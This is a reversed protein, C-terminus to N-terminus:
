PFIELLLSEYRTRVIEVWEDADVLDFVHILVTNRDQDYELWASGPVATLICALTALGLPHRLRLQMEIFGETPKPRPSLLVFFVAFNSRIVDIIVVGLLQLAKLPRRLGVREGIVPRAALPVITAVFAGMLIHGLGASQQLMLWFVLLLGSLLPHPFLRTM